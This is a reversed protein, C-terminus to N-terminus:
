PVLTRAFFAAAKKLFENEQRLRANDKELQRVHMADTPNLTLGADRNDRQYADIWKRLTTNPVGLDKATGCINDRELALGVAQAKFDPTYQRYKGM